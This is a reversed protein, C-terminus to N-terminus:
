RTRTIAEAVRGPLLQCVGDALWGAPELAVSWDLKRTRDRERHADRRLKMEYVLLGDESHCTADPDLNYILTKMPENDPQVWAEFRDIGRDLAADALERLLLSGLGRGQMDDIISIAIEARRPDHDDRTFRAIGVGPGPLFGLWPQEAGLAFRHHGDLDLLREIMGETLRPTPTFFRRYRSEPSFREFGALLRERDAPRLPRIRVLTGDALRHLTFKTLDM